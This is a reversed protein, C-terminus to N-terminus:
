HLPKPHHHPVHTSSLTITLVSASDASPVSSCTSPPPLSRVSPRIWTPDFIQTGTSKRDTPGDEEPRTSTRIPKFFAPSGRKCPGEKFPAPGPSPDTVIPKPGDKPDGSGKVNIWPVDRVRRLSKPPCDM